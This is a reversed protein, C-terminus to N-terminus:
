PRAEVRVGDALGLPLPTIVKEGASLGSLVEVVGERHGGLSIMRSRAVGGEAVMVQRVQGQERVSGEPVTLVRKEGSSFRARGFVGSRLGPEAPLDVKVVFTRSAADVSPGLESIRGRAEKGLADLSVPVTQGVKLRGIMSEELVVELRLGGAQEVTFLPTGPTALMGPEAQKETVVGAFPSRLEAFGKQIEAASVGERAQLIKSDLQKRKAQAMALATEALKLKAAVEDFEQASISKKAALDAMRRYTAQTLELQAKAASVAGDAEPIGSRAEGEGAQAMRYGAELDRSDIVALVQGATVASGLRVRVERISGVIRAAIVASTRARVTGSAEREEPWTVEAAAVTSVTVAPADKAAPQPAEKGGCGVSIIAAM